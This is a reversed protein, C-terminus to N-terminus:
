SLSPKGNKIGVKDGANGFLIAKAVENKVKVSIKDGATTQISDKIAKFKEAIANAVAAPVEAEPDTMYNKILEGVKEAFAKEDVEVESSDLEAILSTLADKLEQSKEGTLTDSIQKKIRGLNAFDKVKIFQKKM